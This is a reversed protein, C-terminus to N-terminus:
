CFGLCRSRLECLSVLVVMALYSLMNGCLLSDLLRGLADFDAMDGGAGIVCNDGVKKLRSLTRLKAM